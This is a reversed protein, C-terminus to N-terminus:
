SRQEEDSVSRQAVSHPVALLPTGKKKERKKGSQLHPMLLVILSERVGGVPFGVSTSLLNADSNKGNTEIYNICKRVFKFGIENLEM